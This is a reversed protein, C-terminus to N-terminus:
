LLLVVAYFLYNEHDIKACSKFLTKLRNHFNKCLRVCRAFLYQYIFVYKVICDYYHDYQLDSKQNDSFLVIRNIVYM